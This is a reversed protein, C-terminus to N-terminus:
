CNNCTIYIYIYYIYIYIFIFSLVYKDGYRIVLSPQASTKVLKEYFVGAFGSSCCAVLVALLGTLEDSAARAPPAPGQVLETSPGQVLASAPVQVLVVGLTLLVLSAWQVPLLTRHLLLVSCGATTLLKLQYTM